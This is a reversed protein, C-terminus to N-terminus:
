SIKNNKSTNGECWRLESMGGSDVCHFRRKSSFPSCTGVLGHVLNYSQAPKSERVCRSRYGQAPPQGATAVGVADMRALLPLHARVAPANGAVRVYGKGNSVGFWHRDERPAFVAM